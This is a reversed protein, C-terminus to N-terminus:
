PEVNFVVKEIKNKKHGAYEVSIELTQRHVGKGSWDLKGRLYDGDPTLVMVSTKVDKPKKVSANVSVSSLTVKKMDHDYIYVKIDGREHVVEVYLQSTGKMIGGNPAAGAGPTKNHGEHAIATGTSTFLAGVGLVSALVLSAAPVLARRASKKGFWYFVVPTVIMDLLTSSVLGGVIVVAVPHLIEKGPEGAALVLPMLGLVATLATMLVPILRELSGRM